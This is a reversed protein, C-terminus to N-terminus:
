AELAEIRATLEQVAKVLIPTLGAYYLSQPNIEGDENVADKEGNVISPIIAQMEHAIFGQNVKDTQTGEKETYEIPRMLKITNVANELLGIEDKVRYDSVSGIQVGTGGNIHAYYGASQRTFGFAQFSSAGTINDSLYQYNFGHKADSVIGRGLLPNTVDFTDFLILPKTIGFFSADCRAVLTMDDETPDIRAHFDMAGSTYDTTNFEYGRICAFAAPTTRNQTGSSFGISGGNSNGYGISGPVSNDTVLVSHVRASNVVAQQQPSAIILQANDTRTTVLGTGIKNFVSIAVKNGQRIEVAKTNAFPSGAFISALETGIIFEGETGNRSWNGATSQPDTILGIRAFPQTLLEINTADLDSIFVMNPNVNGFGINVDKAEDGNNIHRIVARPDFFAGNPISRDVEFGNQFYYDVYTSGVRVDLEYAPAVTGIGVFGNTTVSLASTSNLGVRVDLECVPTLTGIGVFGNATVSLADTPTWEVTDWRLTQNVATGVVVLANGAAGTVVKSWVNTTLDQIEVIKGLVTGADRWRMIADGAVTAQMNAQGALFLGTTVNTEFTISPASESGDAFQLPVKMGGRGDRSLSNTLATAIDTLTSNAWQTTIATAPEVPNGAPLTYTGTADRSM